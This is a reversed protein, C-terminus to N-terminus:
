QGSVVNFSVPPLNLAAVRSRTDATVTFRWQEFFTILDMEAAKSAEIIWRQTRDDGGLQLTQYLLMLKKMYEQPHHGPRQTAHTDAGRGTLRFHWMYAQSDALCAHWGARVDIRREGLRGRPRRARHGGDALQLPRARRGLGLGAAAVRQRGLLGAGGAQPQRWLATHPRGAHSPLSPWSGCDTYQNRHVYLAKRSRCRQQSVASPGGQNACYCFPGADVIAHPACAAAAGRGGSRMRVKTVREVGMMSWLNCTVQLLSACRGRVHHAALLLWAVCARPHARAKCAPARAAHKVRKVWVQNSVGMVKGREVAKAWGVEGTGPITM